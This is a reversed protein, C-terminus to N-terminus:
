RTDWMYGRGEWALTVAGAVALRQSPADWPSWPRRRLASFLTIDASSGPGLTYSVKGKYNAAAPALLLFLPALALNPTECGFLPGQQASCKPEQEPDPHATPPTPRHAHGAQLAAGGPVQM